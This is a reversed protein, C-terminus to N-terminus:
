GEKRIEAIEGGFRALVEAVLPDRQIRQAEEALARVAARHKEMWELTDAAAALPALRREAEDPGGHRGWILSLSSVAERVAAAQSQLSPRTM